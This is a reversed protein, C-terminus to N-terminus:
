AYISIVFGLIIARSPPRYFKSSSYSAYALCMLTITSMGDAILHCITPVTDADPSGKYPGSMLVIAILDCLVLLLFWRPLQKGKNLLIRASSLLYINIPIGFVEGWFFPNGTELDLVFFLYQVAFLGFAIGLYRTWPREATSTETEMRFMMMSAFAAIVLNFSQLTK